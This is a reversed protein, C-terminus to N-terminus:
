SSGCWQSVRPCVSPCLSTVLPKREVAFKGANMRDTKRCNWLRKWLWNEVCRSPAEQKLKWYGKTEKLDDLLQKHRIGRRIGGIKGEIFQKLLCNKCVIHGIWSAKRRKITCIINREEKVRHLIEENRVRDTWSIKEMRRWFWTEFRELCKQDVKGLKLVM